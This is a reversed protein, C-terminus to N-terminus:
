GRVGERRLPTKPVVNPNMTAAPWRGDLMAALAESVERHLDAYIEESAAAFHPTLIVRQPDMQLLPNDPAPPEQDLVDLAAGFLRSAQLAQILAAEDVIAGRSTNVIVASPKMLSLKSGDILHRTQPMLPVHLSVIDSERLLEDLAAPTAGLSRVQEDGRSPDHGLIRL